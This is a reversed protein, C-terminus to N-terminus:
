KDLFIFVLDNVNTQTPGTFVLDGLGEFYHYADNRRLFTCPDLGKIQSRSLTDGRVAAGAANTPGDGGDTALTVLAAGELGALEEVAGLALEQNRGGLGNGRVTVTTEGGAIICAPRSVPVGTSAVQRAFVALEQGVRSAEGQLETTLLFPQYGEPRAQAAGAEAALRNSGIIVNQIREFIPDNQKPTDPIVGALGNRLHEQVGPPSIEILHYKEMIHWADAFTTPDPATPGSAIVDMPDGVVDSLALTVARGSVCQGLAIRRALGGGKVLDLHKRLTNVEHITAGCHLLQLTLEQLNELSVGDVPATFLASGGGSILCVLLDEKGLQDVFALGLKGAALSREDPVPHGSEWVQIHDPFHFRGASAHGYKTILLGATLREDLIDAAAAGMPIAAKGIGLLFIKQIGQLDYSRSGIQLIDGERQMWRHVAAGPDVAALAAQLVRHISDSLAAGSIDIM